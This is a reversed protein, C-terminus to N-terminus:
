GVAQLKGSFPSASKTGYVPAIQAARRQGLLTEQLESRTRDIEGALRASTEARREQLAAIRGRLGPATAHVLGATALFEILPATREQLEVVMSIDGNALAMAEQSVLDELAMVIRACRQAPTEM